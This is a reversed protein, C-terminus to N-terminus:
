EMLSKTVRALQEITQQGTQMTSNRDTYIAITYDTGNNNKVYGISNVMWKSDGYNLWGNKIAFRNSDASIGWNQDADVNSMLDNIYDQDQQSLIKSHYFINNLLKVQDRPTTTSLGWNKRATSASMGFQDFTSQLGQQGGLSDFLTTTANNDSQEIMAKALSSQHDSLKGSQKHLLGALIAVKVTSATHFRHGPANTASYIQHTRPSYVAIAVNDNSTYIVKNWASKLRSDLSGFRHIGWIALIVLIIIIWFTRRRRKFRHNM